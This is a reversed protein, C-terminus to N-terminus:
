AGATAPQDSSCTVNLNEPNSWGTIDLGRCAIRLELGPIRSQLEHILEETTPPTAMEQRAQELLESLRVGPLKSAVMFQPEPAGNLVWDPNIRKRRLLTVLWADPVNRRRKADSISSQRIGLFEALQVQTRTGAAKHIRRMIDDFNTRQEMAVEKYALVFYGRGRHHGFM